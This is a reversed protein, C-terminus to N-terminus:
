EKFEEIRKPPTIKVNMKEGLVAKLGMEKLTETMTLEDEFVMTITMYDSAIGKWKLTWREKYKDNKDVKSNKLESLVFWNNEQQTM